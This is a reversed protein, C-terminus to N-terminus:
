RTVVVRGTAGLGPVRVVYVGNAVHRGQADTLDWSAARAGAAVDLRRVLRGAVDYVALSSAAEADFRFVTRSASPNPAARVVPPLSALSGPVDVTADAVITLDIPPATGADIPETTIEVGALPDFVRLGPANADRDTMFLQSTEAHYALSSVFSPTVFLSDMLAGTNMDFRVLATTFFFDNSAYAVGVDDNVIAFGGVDGGLQAETSVFGLSSLADLDIVEIGADLAGFSGITSVYLRRADADVTMKQGPNLGTLEIAQVGERSADTDVLRGTTVDIVALYSPPVPEFFGDQNLRQLQVFVRDGDVTMMVMEPLGDADAFGGLDVSDTVVGTMPNVRYLWRSNFRTVFADDPTILAIDQPNSGAGLSFAHSTSASRPDIVMVDDSGFRNVVYVHGFANRVVPDSGVTVIDEKADWPAHVSLASATGPSFFDTHVAFVTDARASGTLSLAAILTLFCPTRM